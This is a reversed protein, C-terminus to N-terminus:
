NSVSTKRHSILQTSEFTKLDTPVTPNLFVSMVFEDGLVSEAAMTNFSPKSAKTVMPVVIKQLNQYKKHISFVSVQYLMM